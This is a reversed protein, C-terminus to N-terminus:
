PISRSSNLPARCTCFPQRHRRSSNLIYRSASTEPVLPSMEPSLVLLLMFGLVLPSPV